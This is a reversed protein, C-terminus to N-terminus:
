VRQKRSTLHWVPQATHHRWCTDCRFNGIEEPRMLRGGAELECSITVRASVHMEAARNRLQLVVAINLEKMGILALGTMVKRCGGAM